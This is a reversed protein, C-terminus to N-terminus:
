DMELMHECIWREIQRPAKGDSARLEDAVESPVLWAKGDCYAAGVKMSEVIIDVPRGEYKSPTFNNEVVKSKVHDCWREASAIRVRAIVTGGAVL